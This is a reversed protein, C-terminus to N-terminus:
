DLRVDKCLKSIRKLVKLELAIEKRADPKAKKKKAVLKKEAKNVERKIGLTSVFGKKAAM